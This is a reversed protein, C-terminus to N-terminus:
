RKGYQIFSGTDGPDTSLITTDALAGKLSVLSLGFLVFLVFFNRKM